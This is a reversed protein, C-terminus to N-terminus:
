LTVGAKAAMWTEADTLDAGETLAGRILLGYINGLFPLAANNRRGVYLPASRFNGSGKDGVGDTGYVGNRRIRSLSAPIDHLASVVAKDAATLAVLAIQGTNNAASGRSSSYWGREESGNSAMFASGTNAETAYSLECMIATSGPPRSGKSAGAIITMKDTASFDVPASTLMGDDAGDFGLWHLTGDTRYTPRSATAAQTLHNGNGSKDLMLGVPDGDATVPITGAADQFLTTLDSPDYLGGQEGNAFFILPDFPIGSGGARSYRTLGLSMPPMFFM